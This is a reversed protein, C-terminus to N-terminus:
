KMYKTYIADLAKADDKTFEAHKLINKIAAADKTKGDNALKTALRLAVKHM